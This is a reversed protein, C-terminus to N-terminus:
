RSPFFLGTGGSKVIEAVSGVEAAVVPLGAREAELLATPLLDFDNSPVILLDQTQLFGQASDVWGHWCVPKWRSKTEHRSRLKALLRDRAEDQPNGALNLELVEDGGAAIGDAIAFLDCLGKRESFVGAFGIRVPGPPASSPRLRSPPCAPMFWLWNALPIVPPKV